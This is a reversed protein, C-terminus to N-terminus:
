GNWYTKFPVWGTGTLYEKAGHIIADVWSKCSARDWVYTNRVRGSYTDYDHNSAGECVSRDEIVFGCSNNTWRVESYANSTSVGFGVKWQWYSTCRRGTAASTGTVTGALTVSHAPHAPVSASAAAPAGLLVAAAAPLAALKARIM